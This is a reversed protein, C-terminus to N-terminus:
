MGAHDGEVQWWIKLGDEESGHILDAIFKLCNNLADLPDKGYMKAREPNVYSLSWYCVWKSESLQEVGEIQLLGTEVEGNVIFHLTRSLQIKTM